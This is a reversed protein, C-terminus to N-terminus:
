PGGEPPKKHRDRDRDFAIVPLEFARKIVEPALLKREGEAACQVSEDRIQGFPLDCPPREPDAIEVWLLMPHVLQRLM